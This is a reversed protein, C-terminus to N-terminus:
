FIIAAIPISEACTATYYYVLIDEYQVWSYEKVVHEEAGLAAMFRM